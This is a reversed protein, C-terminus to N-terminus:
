EFTGGIGDIAQHGLLWNGMDRTSHQRTVEVAASRRDGREVPFPRLVPDMVGRVDGSVDGGM